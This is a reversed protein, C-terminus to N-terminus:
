KKKNEATPKVEYETAGDARTNLELDFGVNETKAMTQIAKLFKATENRGDYGYPHEPDYPDLPGAEPHNKRKQLLNEEVSAWLITTAAQAQEEKTLETLKPIEEKLCHVFSEPKGDTCKDFDLETM